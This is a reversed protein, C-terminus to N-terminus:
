KLAPDTAPQKSNNGGSKPAGGKARDDKAPSEKKKDDDTVVEPDLSQPLDAVYADILDQDVDKGASFEAWSEDTATEPLEALQTLAKTDLKLEIYGTQLVVAPRDFPVRDAGSHLSGMLQTNDPTEVLLKKM